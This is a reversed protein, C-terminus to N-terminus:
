SSRRSNQGGRKAAATKGAVGTMGTTGTTSSAKGGMSHIKDATKKDMNPSGLGPKHMNNDAM